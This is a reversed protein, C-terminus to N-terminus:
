YAANPAFGYESYATVKDNSQKGSLKDAFCQIQRIFFTTRDLYCKATNTTNLETLLRKFHWLQKDIQSLDLTLSITTVDKDCQLQIKPNYNDLEQRGEKIATPDFMNTVNNLYLSACFTANEIVATFSKKITNTIVYVNPSRTMNIRDDVAKEKRAQM